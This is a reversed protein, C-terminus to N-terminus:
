RRTGARRAQDAAPILPPESESRVLEALEDLKGAVTAASLRPFRGHRTIYDNHRTLMVKDDRVEIRQINRGAALVRLRAIRLLHDLARPLPGFRDRFERYFEDIEAETAAAAIKRYAAVRLNEDELYLGPIVASSDEGAATSLTIFDLKVEVEIIPPAPEGKLQAVSRKLLQCYLDFGVATIHGSQEAGLLNGAGRIELDRLALKFGAGLSSYRQIASIRKRAFEFLPGHRPLLLYAYAKHKYRGVRGRLQYLDALGFRDASEIVITNVNPIDVGSEIITTCLLVDFAGRVFRHMVAALEDEPMRGHAVEMRAEPVLADLRRRVKEITRIRNHLYFVQGDRSLERRIAEQVVEDRYETVVTEIPLREQPPTQITSMDRAGTLSLYLTRPIPTATLTLVDLTHSMRKFFEKQEVGFRQEEDLILLGLRAFAVDAQLLRHTGIVADIHGSRLKQVVARQEARTQFRSLMAISVPFAQMRATFTDFHQQALVTTPVLVAVQRGDMIMKFAARMAVETKGYGVDGCVLRDMPRKRELDEKVERIARQQDPTEPYPFAAEFEHQWHTDPACARGELTERAAQTELLSASLDRIAREASVKEKWWKRGGLAHLAPRRRGLGVYRTLLHAQAVPVYLRAKEAYEVALVEQPLGHFVIEYLGLYKGIGHHVHVVLDGPQFESWEAVPRGAPPASRRHRSAGVVAGGPRGYVDSESMVALRIGESVFGESLPGLRLDFRDLWPEARYLERFRDRTGETAFYLRVRWGDAARRGWEELFRRRPENLLDPQLVDSRLAPLGEVPRLDIPHEEGAFDRGSGVAIRTTQDPGALHPLPGIGPTDADAMQEAHQRISEPESWIWGCAPPLYDPLRATAQADAFRDTAPGVTIEKVQQVSRQDLPNFSRISEVTAGFFEVRYPWSESPPWVDLLGGRVSAQGKSQVEPTFEYGASEL